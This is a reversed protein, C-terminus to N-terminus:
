LASPSSVARTIGRLDKYGVDQVVVKFLPTGFDSRRSADRVGHKSQSVEKLAVANGIDCRFGGRAVDVLPV